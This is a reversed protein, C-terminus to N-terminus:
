ISGCAKSTEVVVIELAPGKCQIQRAACRSSLILESKQPEAVVGFEAASFILKIGSPLGQFKPIKGKAQKIWRAEVGTKYDMPMM